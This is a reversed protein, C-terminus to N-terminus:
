LMVTNLIYLHVEYHLPDTYFILLFFLTLNQSALENVEDVNVAM